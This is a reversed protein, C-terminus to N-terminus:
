PLQNRISDLKLEASDPAVIPFTPTKKTHRRRSEQRILGALRAYVLTNISQGIAFVPERIIVAYVLVAFAAAVAAYGLAPSVRHRGDPQGANWYFMVVTAIVAQSVLGIVIWTTEPPHAFLRDVLGGPAAALDISGLNDIGVGMTM